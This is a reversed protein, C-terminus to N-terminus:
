RRVGLRVLLVDALLLALLGGWTVIAGATQSGPNEGLQRGMVMFIVVIVVPVFALGFASLPAAGRFIVGLVAGMLLTVLVSASLGLRFHITAAVKRRLKEASAQLGARRAELAEPLALPVCPDIVNAPTVDQLGRFIGDPFSVGDISMTGKSYPTGYDASRPNDEYVHQDATRLLRIEILIKDSESDEGPGLPRAILEVRGAFYLTPKPEDPRFMRVRADTLRARGGRKADQEARDASIEYRRGREDGLVVTRGSSIQEVTSKYFRQIAVHVLFENVKLRLKDAKWPAARWAILSRLDAWSTRLKFPLPVQIPGIKQSQISVIRKPPQYERADNLHLTVTIPTSRTDFACMGWAATAFRIIEGNEALQLFTPARLSMYALEPDFGRAELDERAFRTEVHEATLFFEGRFRAVRIFGQQILKQAAIDRLNARAFREIRQMSDPIVFNGFVLTFAAVFLSLLIVSLFLRHVNIGAARCALLENDATLRGYVMTAAFLAALPMTLTIIIPILLPLFRMLDATTVGESHMVNFIGGGMTFLITLGALALGFTKLLERLVYAHLTIM